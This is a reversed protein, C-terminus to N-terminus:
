VPNEKKGRLSGKLLLFLGILILILPWLDRFQIFSFIGIALLILGAIFKGGFFNEKLFLTRLFSDFIFIGGLVILFYKWWESYPIIQRASLLFLVGLSILILGAFIESIQKKTM